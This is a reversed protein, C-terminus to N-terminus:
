LLVFLAVCFTRSLFSVLLNPRRHKSTKGAHSVPIEQKSCNTQGDNGTTHEVLRIKVHPKRIEFVNAIQQNSIM